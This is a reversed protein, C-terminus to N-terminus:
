RADNGDGVWSMGDEGGDGQEPLPICRTTIDHFRLPGELVVTASLGVACGVILSRSRFQKTRVATCSLILPHAGSLPQSASLDCTHEIRLYVISSLLLRTLVVMRHELVRELHLRSIQPRSSKQQM